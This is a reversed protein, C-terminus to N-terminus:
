TLHCVRMADGTGASMVDKAISICHFRKPGQSPNKIKKVGLLNKVPHVKSFSDPLSTLKTFVAKYSTLSTETATWTSTHQTYLETTSCDVASRYTRPEVGLAGEVIKKEKFFIRENANM